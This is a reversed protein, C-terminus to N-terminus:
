PRVVHNRRGFSNLDGVALIGERFQTFECNKVIKCQSVDRISLDGFSEEGRVLIDPSIFYWVKDVLERKLLATSFETGGEVLISSIGHKGAKKLLSFPDVGGNKTKRVTWTTLGSPTKLNVAGDDTPVVTTTQYADKPLAKIMDAIQKRTGLLILKIRHSDARRLLSKTSGAEWLIADAMQNRLSLLKAIAKKPMSGASADQLLIRGDLSQVVGLVVFPLGTTMYKFHVANLKKAEDELLGLSVKIGHRTLRRLGRGNVRPNPDIVACVVKGIGSQIILETCPPTKGFHCCPELTTYLTAGQAEEGCAKIAIAEAHPGGFKKHYGKAIVQDNKVVVAGVLPNPSTRGRGKGALKLALRMFEQDKKRWRIRRTSM